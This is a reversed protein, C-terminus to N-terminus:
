IRALVGNNVKKMRDSGFLIEVLKLAFEMATGPSQSTIMKEDVVVRDDVFQCDKFESRVSPHCTMSRGNLVGAKQLVIPAACIAAIYKGQMKQLLKLIRPDNKLNDTGPQGGPLCILDFEKEMIDDLLEDPMVKIGRSGELAGTVTAALTVRAGARRLIDVVTITEIEEFGPAITVLVTKM